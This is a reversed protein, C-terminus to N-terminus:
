RFLIGGDIILSQGTMYRGDASALYSVLGAVDDATQPRGLTIMSTFQEFTAGKAVGTHRAFEEDVTVWMSTDVIGPCYSNVTIGHRGLEKAAAQTVARIAFKTACYASLMGFGEHGAGASANVIVGKRGSAIFSEAAAQIGWIVSNVNTSFITDLQEETVDLIPEVQVIGANNVMVDLEGLESTAKQVAAFVQARVSVDAQIGISRRGLGGIEEAVKVAEEVNRDVVAIDAGDRALRLAVARGIGKAAGTVLAVSGSIDSM